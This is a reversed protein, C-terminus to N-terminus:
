QKVTKLVNRRFEDYQRDLPISTPNYWKYFGIAMEKALKTALVYCANIAEIEGEVDLSTDGEGYDYVVAKVNSKIAKDFDTKTIM